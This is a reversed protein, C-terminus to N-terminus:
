TEDDAYGAVRAEQSEAPLPTVQGGNRMLGKMIEADDDYECARVELHEALAHRDNAKEHEAM